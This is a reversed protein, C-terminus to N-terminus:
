EALVLFGEVLEFRGPAYYAFIREMRRPGLNVVRRVGDKGIRSVKGEATRNAVTLDNRMQDSMVSWKWFTPRVNTWFDAWAEAPTLIKKENM